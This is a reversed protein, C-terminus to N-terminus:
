FFTPVFGLFIGALPSLNCRQRNYRRRALPVAAEVARNCLTLTSTYCCKWSRVAPESPPALGHLFFPILLSKVEGM